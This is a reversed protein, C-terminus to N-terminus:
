SGSINIELGRNESSDPVSNRPGDKEIMQLTQALDVGLEGVPKKLMFSKLCRCICASDQEMKDNGNSPM